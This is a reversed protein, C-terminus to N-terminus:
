RDRDVAQHHRRGAEAAHEQRIRQPRHRRADPRTPVTVTVDDLATFTEDPKLDRMLSRTLLASKLTAFQKRHSYRRYIKSADHRSRHGPGM